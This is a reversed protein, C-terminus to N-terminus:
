FLNHAIVIVVFAFGLSYLVADETDILESRKSTVVFNGFINRKSTDLTIETKRIVKIYGFIAISLMIMGLLSGILKAGVTQYVIVSALLLGVPSQIFENTVVGLNRATNTLTLSLRDALDAYQIVQTTPNSNAAKLDDATKQLQEVQESTLGSTSVDVDAFVPISCSLLIALALKKM